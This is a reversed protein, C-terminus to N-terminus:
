DNRLQIFDLYGADMSVLFLFTFMVSIGTAWLMKSFIKPNRPASSAHGLEVNKSVSAGIPLLMLLIIWWSVSFVMVFAFVSMDKRENIQNTVAYHINLIVKEKM